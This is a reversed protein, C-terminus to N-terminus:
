PEGDSIEAGLEEFFDSEERPKPQFRYRGAGIRTALGCEVFDELLDALRGPEPDVVESTRGEALASFLRFLWRGGADGGVIGEGLSICYARLLSAQPEEASPFTGRAAVERVAQVFPSFSSPYPAFGESTEVVVLHRALEAAIEWEDKEPVVSAYPDERLADEMRELFRGLRELEDDAAATAVVLSAVCLVSEEFLREGAVRVLVPRKVGGRWMANFRARRVFLRSNALGRHATRIVGKRIQERAVHPDRSIEELLGERVGDPVRSGLSRVVRVLATALSTEPRRLARGVSVFLGRPDFLRGTVATQIEGYLAQSRALVALGNEAWFARYLKEYRPSEPSLERFGDRRL